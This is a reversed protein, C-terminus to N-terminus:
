QPLTTHNEDEAVGPSREPESEVLSRMADWVSGLTRGPRQPNVAHQVQGRTESPRFGSRLLFLAAEEQWSKETRGISSAENSKGSQSSGVAESPVQEARKRMRM